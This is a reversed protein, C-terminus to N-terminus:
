ELTKPISCHPSPRMSLLSIAHLIEVITIFLTCLETDELYDNNISAINNCVCPMGEELLKLSVQTKNSVTGEPGNTAIAEKVNLREKM